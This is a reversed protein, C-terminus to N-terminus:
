LDEFGTVKGPWKAEQKRNFRNMAVSRGEKLIVEVAEAANAIM